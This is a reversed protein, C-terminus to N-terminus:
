WSDCCLQTQTFSLLTYSLVGEIILLLLNPIFGLNHFRASSVVARHRGGEAVTKLIKLFRPLLIVEPHCLNDGVIFSSKLTSRFILAKGNDNHLYLHNNHQLLIQYVSSFQLFKLCMILLTGDIHLKRPNLVTRLGAEGVFSSWTDKAEVRVDQESLLSEM